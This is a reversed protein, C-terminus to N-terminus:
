KRAYKTYVYAGGAALLLWVPVGFISSGIFGGGGELETALAIAQAPTIRGSKLLAMAREEATLRRLILAMAIAVAVVATAVAATLVVPVAGLQGFGPIKGKVANWNNRTTYYSQLLKSWREVVEHAKARQPSGEPQARAYEVAQSRGATIRRDAVMFEAQKLKLWEVAEAATM